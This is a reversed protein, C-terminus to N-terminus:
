KNATWLKTITDAVGSPADQLAVPPIVFGILGSMIVIGKASSQIETVGTWATHWSQYWTTLQIGSPDFSYTVPTGPRLLDSQLDHARTNVRRTWGYCGLVFAIGVVFPLVTRATGGLELWLALALGAGMGIMMALALLAIGAVQGLRRIFRPAPMIGDTLARATDRDMTYELRLTDTM